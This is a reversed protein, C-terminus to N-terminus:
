FEMKRRNAKRKVLWYMLGKGRNKTFILWLHFKKGGFDNEIDTNNLLFNPNDHWVVKAGTVRLAHNIRKELEFDVIASLHIITINNKKIITSTYDDHM